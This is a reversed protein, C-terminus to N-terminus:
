IEDVTIPEWVGCQMWDKRAHSYGFMWRYVCWGDDHVFTRPDIFRKWRKFPFRIVIYRARIDNEGSLRNIWAVRAIPLVELEHLDRKVFWKM